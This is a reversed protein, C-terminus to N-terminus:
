QETSEHAIKGLLRKRNRVVDKGQFVIRIEYGSEGLFDEDYEVEDTIDSVLSLHRDIPHDRYERIRETM